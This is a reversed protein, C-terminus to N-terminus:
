SFFSKYAQNEVAMHKHWRNQALQKSRDAKTLMIYYNESRKCAYRTTRTCHIVLSSYLQGCMQDLALRKSNCSGYWSQPQPAIPWSVSSWCRSHCQARYCLHILCPKITIIWEDSCVRMTTGTCEHNYKSCSASCLFYTCDFSDLDDTAFIAFSGYLLCPHRETKSAAFFAKGYAIVLGLRSPHTGKTQFATPRFLFTEMLTWTALIPSPM